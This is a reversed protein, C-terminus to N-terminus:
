DPLSAAYEVVEALTMRRGETLAEEVAEGGIARRAAEEVEGSVSVMQPASAGTTERLAVAAGMM